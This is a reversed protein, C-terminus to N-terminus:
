RALDSEFIHEIQDNRTAIEGGPNEVARATM